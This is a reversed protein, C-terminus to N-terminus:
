PERGSLTRCAQARLRFQLAEAQQPRAETLFGWVPCDDVSKPAEAVIKTKSRLNPEPLYGDLWIYELKYKSASSM